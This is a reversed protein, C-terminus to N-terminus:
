FDLQCPFGVYYKKKFICGDNAFGGIDDNELEDKKDNTPLYTIAVVFSM